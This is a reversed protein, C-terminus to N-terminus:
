RKGKKRGSLLAQYLQRHKEVFQELSFTEKLLTITEESQPQLGGRDLLEALAADDDQPIVQACPTLENLETVFPMDTVLVPLGCIAAELFAVSLGEYWSTMVFCDAQSLFDKVNKHMGLFEVYPELGNQQIYLQLQQAVPEAPDHYGLFYVRFDTRGKEVLRNLGRLLCLQNKQEAIRAVNLIAKQGPKGGFPIWFSPDKAGKSFEGIDIANYIRTIKESPIRLEQVMYEEAAKGISVYSDAMWSTLKEKKASYGRTNHITCVVPIGLLKGVIKGFFMPIDCHAHILEVGNAKAYRYLKRITAIRDSGARKELMHTHIGCSNLTRIMERETETNHKYLSVVGVWDSDTIMRQSLDYVLKEAGGWQFGYMLYLIRM